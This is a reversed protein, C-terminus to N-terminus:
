FRKVKLASQEELVNRATSGHANQRSTRGGPFANGGTTGGPFANGGPTGGPFANGGPTGGPFANGGTTGGPFANGGTTGAPSVSGVALRGDIVVGLVQPERQRRSGEGGGVVVRKARLGLPPSSHCGASHRPNPGAIVFLM